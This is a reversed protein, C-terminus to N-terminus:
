LTDWHPALGITNLLNVFQKGAGYTISVLGFLLRVDNKCKQNRVSLLLALANVGCTIKYEPTKHVRRRSDTVLLTELVSHLLPCKDEFNLHLLDFINQDLVSGTDGSGKLGLNCLGEMVQMEKMIQMKQSLSIHVEEQTAQLKTIKQQYLNVLASQYKFYQQLNLNQKANLKKALETNSGNLAATIDEGTKLLSHELDKVQNQM